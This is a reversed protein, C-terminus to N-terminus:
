FVELLYLFDAFCVEDHGVSVEELRPLQKLLNTFFHQVISLEWCHKDVYGFALKKLNILDGNSVFKELAKCIPITTTHFSLGELQPLSHLIVDIESGVVHCVSRLELETIGRLKITNLVQPDIKLKRDHNSEMSIGPMLIKIGNWFKPSNFMQRFHQNVKSMNGLDTPSLYQAIHFIVM